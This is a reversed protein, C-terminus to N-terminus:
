IVIRALIWAGYAMAGLLPVVVVFGAITGLLEGRDTPSSSRRTRQAVSM